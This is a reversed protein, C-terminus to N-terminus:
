RINGEGLSYASLAKEVAGVYGSAEELPNCFSLVIERAGAGLRKGLSADLLKEMAQSLAKADNPPILLGTEGDQVLAGAAGCATTTVLPIGALAGEVLVKGWTDKQTPLLLADATLYARALDNLFHPCRRLLHEYIFNGFFSGNASGIKSM